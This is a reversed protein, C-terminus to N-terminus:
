SFVEASCKINNMKRAFYQILVNIYLKDCKKLYM